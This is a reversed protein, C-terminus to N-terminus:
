PASRYSFGETASMNLTMYSTGGSFRWSCSAEKRFFMLFCVCSYGESTGSYHLRLKRIFYLMLEQKKLKKWKEELEARKSDDVLEMGAKLIENPMILSSNMGGSQVFRSIDINRAVNKDDTKDVEMMSTKDDDVGNSKVLSAAAGKSNGNKQSQNKNSKTVKTGNNDNSCGWILKSLEYGKQEHSKSFSREKGYKEKEANNCYKKKLRRVKDVLQGRSVDVHLSKKIFEHFAGMDVIPNEGNKETRYDIMGKLIAIEDDESWLRQFLQKKSDDDMAISKKGKKVDKGNALAYMLQRNKPTIATKPSPWVVKKASKSALSVGIKVPKSAMPKVNSVAVTSKKLALDTDSDSDSDSDSVDAAQAQAQAQAQPKSTNQKAKKVDKENANPSSLLRKSPTIVTKPSPWVVKKASKSALSVGIEVPKSAMPKVNSVAVTSKKLALDTDSDSDSDSDSGSEEVESDSVDAAQAQAQAQAQTQPKSTNQKAKKADKENANPSSLLRKSPTSIRRLNLLTKSLELEENRGREVPKLAIPKVNVDAVTSKKAPSDSETDSESDSCSEEEETSSLDPAKSKNASQSAGALAKNVEGNVTKQTVKTPTQPPQKSKAPPPTSLKKSEVNTGAAQEMPQSSIPKVNRDISSKKPPSDTDTGSGSHETEPSSLDPAKPKNASQTPPILANKPAPTQKEGSDTDSVSDYDSGSTEEDEDEETSSFVPKLKNNQSM